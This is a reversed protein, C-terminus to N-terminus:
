YTTYLIISDRKLKKTLRQFLILFICKFFYPLLIILLNSLFYQKFKLRIQFSSFFCICILTTHLQFIHMYTNLYILEATLM